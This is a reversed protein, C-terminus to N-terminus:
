SCKGILPKVGTQKVGTLGGVDYTLVVDYEFLNGPSGCSTALTGTVTKEEGGSFTTSPVGLDTGDFSVNTLTMKKSKTNLLTLQVTTGNVKYETISFPQASSWYTRSQSERTDSSVGPFWGLLAIAVLAVILAVALLVLYETSGQGRKFGFM